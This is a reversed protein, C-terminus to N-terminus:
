NDGGDIAVVPWERGIGAGMSLKVLVRRGERRGSSESSIEEGVGDKASEKEVAYM